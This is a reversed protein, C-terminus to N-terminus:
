KLAALILKKYDEVALELDQVTIREDASHAVLITGPGYLYRKHTGNLRPVDTYYNVVTTNFGEVDYDLSVPLGYGTFTLNVYEPTVESVAEQLVDQIGQLDETAARISARGSASEPIVNTAVGGEILGVNLTTNGFEETWPLKTDQIKDLARVLLDIASRGYEPYGSHGAVGDATINFGLVGKHARVLTNETPEGFIVSEWTLGLTNAAGMGDGGSEEGVVYLLAVDGEVIEGSELLEEVAIIQAAVSGKADSTGRGRIEDGSRSYPIYPPVTDFHSTVLVRAERATGPYAFVNQRTGEVTQLEVTFNTELYGKLAQTGLAESKTTSDAEVLTKHLSILSETYSAAWASSALACTLAASSLPKM